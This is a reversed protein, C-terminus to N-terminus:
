DTPHSPRPLLPSSPDIRFPIHQLTPVVLLINHKNPFGVPPPRSPSSRHRTLAPWPVVLPPPVKRNMTTETVENLVPRERINRGFTTSRSPGVGPGSGHRLYKSTSNEDAKARAATRNRIPLQQLSSNLMLKSHRPPPDTFWQALTIPTIIFNFNRKVGSGHFIDNVFPRSLPGPKHTTSTLSLITNPSTPGPVPVHVHGLYILNALSVSFAAGLL